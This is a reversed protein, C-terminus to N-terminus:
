CTAPGPQYNEFLDAAYRADLYSSLLLVATQPHQERIAVAARVGEDTHTPPLKIDVVAADPRALATQRLLTAADEAQGVVDFGQEVLLRVLGERM